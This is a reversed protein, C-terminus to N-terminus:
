SVYQSWQVTCTTLLTRYMYQGSYPTYLSWNEIYITDLTRYMYHGFHPIYILLQVTCIIVM